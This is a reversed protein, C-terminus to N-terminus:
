IDLVRVQSAFKDIFQQKSVGPKLKIEQDEMLQFLQGPRLSGGEFIAKLAERPGKFGDGKGVAWEALSGAGSTVKFTVAEVTLPEYGDAQM